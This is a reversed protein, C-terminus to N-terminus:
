EALDFTVNVQITWGNGPPCCGLMPAQSTISRIGGLKKGTAAALAEATNRASRVAADTAKALEAASPQTAAYGPAGKGANANVTTAGHSTAANMAAILLRISPIDASLSGNLMLSTVQQPQPAEMGPKMQFAPNVNFGTVRIGDAPVGADVLASKIADLRAVLDDAARQMGAADATLQVGVYLTQATALPDAASSPVVGVGTATISPAEATAGWSPSQVPASAVAPSVVVALCLASAVFAAVRLAKM